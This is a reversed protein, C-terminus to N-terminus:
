NFRFTEVDQKYQSANSELKYDVYSKSIEELSMDFM